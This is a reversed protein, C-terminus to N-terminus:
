RKKTEFKSELKRDIPLYIALMIISVIGYKLWINNFNGKKTTLFIALLYAASWAVFWIYYIFPRKPTFKTSCQPCVYRGFPSKAYRAWTLDIDANCNPCKM